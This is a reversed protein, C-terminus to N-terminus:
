RAFPVLSSAALRLGVREHEDFLRYDRGRGARLVGSPLRAAVMRWKFGYEHGGMESSWRWAIGARCCRRRLRAVSERQHDWLLRMNGSRDLRSLRKQAIQTSGCNECPEEQMEPQRKKKLIRLAEHYAVRHLWNRLKKRNQISGAKRWLRLLANQRADEADHPQRLVRMCVRLMMSEYRKVIEAFVARDDDAVVRSLLEEDSCEQLPRM